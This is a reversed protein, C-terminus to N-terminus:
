SFRESFLKRSLEFKQRYNKWGSGLRRTFTIRSAPSFFFFFLSFFLGRSFRNANFCRQIYLPTFSSPFLPPSISTPPRIFPLPPFHFFSRSLSADSSVTFGRTFQRLARRDHVSHTSDSSECGGNWVGEPSKTSCFGDPGDIFSHKFNGRRRSGITKLDTALLWAM